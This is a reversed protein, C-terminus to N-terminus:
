RSGCWKGGYSTSPVCTVDLRATASDLGRCSLDMRAGDRFSSSSMYGLQWGTRVPTHSSVEFGWPCLVECSATGGPCGFPGATCSLSVPAASAAIGVCRNGEMYDDGYCLGYRWGAGPCGTACQVWPAGTCYEDGDPDYRCTVVEWMSGNGDNCDASAGISICGSARHGPPVTGNGCVVATGLCRQDLDGDIYWTDNVYRGGDMNSCDDGLNREPAVYGIPCYGAGDRSNDRCVDYVTGDGANRYRDGDTDAYCGIRLGDDVTGNCDDDLGNCSEARPEVRGICASWMGEICNQRGSECEGVDTGDCEQEPATILCDCILGDMEGDVLDDCNDDYGNCVEPVGPDIGNGAGPIDNCDNGTVLREDTDIRILENVSGPCAFTAADDTDRLPNSCTEAVFGDGDRDGDDAAYDAVTCPNCDEDHGAAAEDCVEANERPYRDADADDCDDGPISGSAGCVISRHGDGDNDADIRGNDDMDEECSTVCRDGDEDCTAGGTCPATGPVCGNPLAGAAEADCVEDGNCFDGDTCDSDNRCEDGGDSGGSTDRRADVMGGDTTSPGCDTEDECPPDSPTTPCGAMALALISIPALAFSRRLSM